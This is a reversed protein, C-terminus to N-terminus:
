VRLLYKRNRGRKSGNSKTRPLEMPDTIPMPSRENKPNLIDNIIEEPSKGAQYINEWEYWILEIKAFNEIFEKFAIIINKKIIPPYKILLDRIFSLVEDDDYWNNDRRM